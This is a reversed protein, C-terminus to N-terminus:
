KKKTERGEKLIQLVKETRKDLNIFAKESMLKELRDKDLRVGTKKELEMRSAIEM